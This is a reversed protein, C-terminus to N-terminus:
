ALRPGDLARAASSFSSTSFTERDHRGVAANRFLPRSLSHITELQFVRRNAVKTSRSIKLKVTRLKATIV